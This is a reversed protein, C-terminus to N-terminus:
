GNDNRQSNVKFNMNLGFPVKEQTSEHDIFNLPAVPVLSNSSSLFQFHNPMIYPPFFSPTLTTSSSFCSFLQPDIPSSLSPPISAYCNVHDQQHDGFRSLSLNSHDYCSNHEVMAEKGKNTRQHNVGNILNHDYNNLANFFPSLALQTSNFDQPKFKPPIHFRNFDEPTMQLPPLKDIDDKTVDLLWDIVKSPQNLGLQDQLHYLQIATPVSLRIRRDRLGKVTLVKSHRDKGGFARSVKVIRPNNFGSYPRSIPSINSLKQHNIIDIDREQDDYTNNIM